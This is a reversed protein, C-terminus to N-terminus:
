SNIVQDVEWNGMKLDPEPLYFLSLRIKVSSNECFDSKWGEVISGSLMLWGVTLVPCIQGKPHNQLHNQM